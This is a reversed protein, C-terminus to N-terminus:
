LTASRNAVSYECTLMLKNAQEPADIDRRERQNPKRTVGAPPIEDADAREPLRLGHRGENTDQRPRQRKRSGYNFETRNEDHAGRDLSDLKGETIHARDISPQEAAVRQGVAEQLYAAIERISRTAAEDDLRHAASGTLAPM